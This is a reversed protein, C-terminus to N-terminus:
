RQLGAFFSDIYAVLEAAKIPKEFFAQPEPVSDDQVTKRFESGTFSQASGVASIIVIPISGLLQDRKITRYLSIGSRGPMMIDLCVLDPVERRALALGDAANDASVVGYQSDELLVTLFSLIDPEDDIVLIKPRRRGKTSDM